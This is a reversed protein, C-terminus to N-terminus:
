AELGEPPSLLPTWYTPFLTEETYDGGEAAGSLQIRLQQTENVSWLQFRRIRHGKALLPFYGWSQGHYCAGDHFREIAAPLGSSWKIWENM